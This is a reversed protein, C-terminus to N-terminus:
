NLQKILKDRNASQKTKQKENELFKKGGNEPIRNNHKGITNQTICVIYNKGV